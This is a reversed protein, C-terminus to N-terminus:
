FVLHAVFEHYLFVFIALISINLTLLLNLILIKIGNYEVRPLLEQPGM